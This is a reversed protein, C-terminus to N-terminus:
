KSYRIPLIAKVDAWLMNLAGTSDFYMTFHEADQPSSSTPIPTRLVDLAKNYSFSGWSDTAKNFVMTWTGPQPICFLSYKGKLLKKGAVTVDQYFEIETSENAGLRWVENYPVIDGFITRGNKQPRSYILRAKPTSAVNKAQFKLIPYGIPFYAMDMPSRDPLSTPIQAQVYAATCFFLAASLLIKKM